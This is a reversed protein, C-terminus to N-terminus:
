EPSRRFGPFEVLQVGAKAPTVFVEANRQCELCNEIVGM